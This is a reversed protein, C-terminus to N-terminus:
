ISTVEHSGFTRRINWTEGDDPSVYMDGNAISVYTYAGFKRSYLIERPRPLLYENECYDSPIADTTHLANTLDHVTERNSRELIEDVDSSHIM